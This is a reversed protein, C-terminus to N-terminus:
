KYKQEILDSILYVSPTQDGSVSHHSLYCKPLLTSEFFVFMCRVAGGRTGIVM